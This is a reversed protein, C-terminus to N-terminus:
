ARLLAELGTGGADSSLTICPPEGTADTRTGGVTAGGCRAVRSREIDSSTFRSIALPVRGTSSSVGRGACTGGALAAEVAPLSLFALLLLLLLSFPLPFSASELGATALAGPTLPLSLLRLRLLLLLLLLRARLFRLRLPPRRRLTLRFPPRLLRLRERRPRLPREELLSLFCVRPDGLTLRGPDLCPSAGPCRSDGVRFALDALRAPEGPRFALDALRRRALDCLRRPLLDKLRRPFLDGLFLDALRRPFLDGLRRLPARESGRRACVEGGRFPPPRDGKRLFRLGDLFTAPLLLDLLRFRLRLLDEGLAPARLGM